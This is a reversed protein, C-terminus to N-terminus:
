RDERGSLDDRGPRADLKAAATKTITARTHSSRGFRPERRSGCVKVLLSGTLITRTGKVKIV